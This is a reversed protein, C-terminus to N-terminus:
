RYVAQRWFLSQPNSDKRGQLCSVSDIKPGNLLIHFPKKAQYNLMEQNQISLNWLLRNAVDNKKEPGGELYEQKAKSAEIVVDRVKDLIAENKDEKVEFESLKEKIGMEEDILDKMKPAYISKPTTQSVFGDLLVAQKKQVGELQKLLTKKSEIEQFNEQRLKQKSAEYVIDIWEQDVAVKDFLSIIFSDLDESRIYHKHESCIKKGNTCYYYDHGKKKNATFLCGCTACVFLGRLPFFHKEKKFHVRKKMVTQASDFLERSILPEHNGQYFNGGKYMLGYYFTNKLLKDINSKCVPIGNRSRLGEKEMLKTMEGITYKGTSYLEFCRKIYHAREQDIILCKKEKDNIYGLPACGPWGGKELKAKNGRKVNVSLDDVYKKAFGFLLSMMFKDDSNNRFFKSPTRIEEIINRDILYIIKGGDVSNRALRDLNWVLICYEEKSKEIFSLMTEFIPRGPEKATKSEKYIRSVYWGNTTALSLLEKEQSDISLIQRDESETSKRCYIIYKM